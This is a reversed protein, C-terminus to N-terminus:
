WGSEEGDVMKATMTPWLIGEDRMMESYRPDDSGGGDM